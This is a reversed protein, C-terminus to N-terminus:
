DNSEIVESPIRIFFTMGCGTQSSVDMTGNLKNLAASALFLGLGRHEGKTSFGRQFIEPIQNAPMGPGHDSIEITWNNDQRALHLTIEKTESKQVADFANDLLNGLLTVMAHSIEPLAIKPLVDDIELLLDVGM